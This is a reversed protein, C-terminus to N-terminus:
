HICIDERRIGKIKLFEFMMTLEKEERHKYQEETYGKIAEEESLNM